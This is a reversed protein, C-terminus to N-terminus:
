EEPMRPQGGLSMYMAACEFDDHFASPACIALKLAVMKLGAERPLTPLRM